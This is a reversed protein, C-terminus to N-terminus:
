SVVTDQQPDADDAVDCHPGAARERSEPPQTALHDSRLGVGHSKESRFFPFNWHSIIGTINLPEYQIIAMVPIYHYM